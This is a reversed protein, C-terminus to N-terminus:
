TTVYSYYTVFYAEFFNNSTLSVYDFPVGNDDKLAETRIWGYEENPVFRRLVEYLQDVIDVLMDITAIDSPPVNARQFGLSIPVERLALGSRVDRTRNPGEDAPGTVIYLKGYPHDRKLNELEEVPAWVQEVDFGNDSFYGEMKRTEIELAILGRLTTGIGTM